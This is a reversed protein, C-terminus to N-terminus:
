LRKNAQCLFPLLVGPFRPLSGLGALRRPVKHRPAEPGVTRLRIVPGLDVGTFVGRGTRRQPGISHHGFSPVPFTGATRHRFTGLPYSHISCISAAFAALHLLCRAQTPNLSCCRCHTHIVGSCQLHSTVQIFAPTFTLRASTTSNGPSPAASSHCSRGWPHTVAAQTQASFALDPYRASCDAARHIPLATSFLLARAGCLTCIFRGWSWHPAVLTHALRWLFLIYCMYSVHIRAHCELTQVLMVLLQVLCPPIQIDLVAFRGGARLLPATSFPMSHAWCQSPIAWSRGGHIVLRTDPLRYRRSHRVLVHLVSCRLRLRILASNAALNLTSRCQPPSAFGM